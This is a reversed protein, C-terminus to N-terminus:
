GCTAALVQNETAIETAVDSAIEEIEECDDFVDVDWYEPFTHLALRSLARADGDAAISEGAMRRLFAQLYIQQVFALDEPTSTRHRDSVKRSVLEPYAADPGIGARALLQLLAPKPRIAFFRKTIM